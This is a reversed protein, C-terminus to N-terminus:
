ARQWCNGAKTLTTQEAKRLHKLILSRAKSTTVAGLREIKVQPATATIIEVQDGGRLPTSLLMLKENIKAALAHTGVQTHIYYAFDLATAGKPLIRMEGKPTFVYIM